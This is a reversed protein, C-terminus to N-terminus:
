PNAEERRLEDDSYQYVMAASLVGDLRHLQVITDAVSTGPVDEVTVIFRGDGTEVHIQVGPLAALQARITDARKPMAYVIASSINM